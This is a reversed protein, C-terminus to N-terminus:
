RTQNTPSPQNVQNPQNLQNFQNIQSFQNVQNSQNPQLAFLNFPFILAPAPKPPTIRPRLRKQATRVQKRPQKTIIIAKQSTSVAREPRAQPLPIDGDLIPITGTVDPELSGESKTEAVVDAKNTQTIEKRDSEDNAADTGPATTVFPIPALGAPPPLTVVLAEAGQTALALGVTTPRLELAPKALIDQTAEQLSIPEDAPKKPDAAKSIPEDSKAATKGDQPTMEMTDSTVAATRPEPAKAATRAEVMENTVDRVPNRSGNLTVAFDLDLRSQQQVPEPWNLAIRNIPSDEYAALSDSRAKRPENLLRSSTYFGVGVTFLFTSIVAIIVVRPDPLM